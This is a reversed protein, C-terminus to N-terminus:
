DPIWRLLYKGSCKRSFIFKKLIWKKRTGNKKRVENERGKGGIAIWYLRKLRKKTWNRKEEEVAIKRKWKRSFIKIKERENEKERELKGKRIEYETKELLRMTELEKEKKISKM